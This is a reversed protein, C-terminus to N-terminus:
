ENPSGRRSRANGFASSTAALSVTVTRRDVRTGLEDPLLPTNIIRRLMITRTRKGIAVTHVPSDLQMQQVSSAGVHQATM